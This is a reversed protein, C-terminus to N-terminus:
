LSESRRLWALVKYHCNERSSDIAPLAPLPPRRIMIVAVGLERAAQLKPATAAGGSHKTVLMEIRRERLLRRENELSFPGRAILNDVHPLDLPPAIPDISRILYHHWPATEFLAAQERGFSLLVRRPAEGLLPPAQEPRDCEIWRDRPHRPWEPRLLQMIAVGAQAAAAAANHAIRAAFPHTAVILAGIRQSVLYDALGTAGGFGGRRTPVGADLPSRTRGALSLIVAIDPQRQLATALRRAELTGGLLLVNIASM